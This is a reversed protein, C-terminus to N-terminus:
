QQLKVPRNAKLQSHFLQLLGLHLKKSCIRTDSIWNMITLHICEMFCNYISNFGSFRLMIETHLIFPHVSSEAPTRFTTETGGLRALKTIACVAAKIYRIQGTLLYYFLQSITSPTASILYFSSCGSGAHHNRAPSCGSRSCDTHLCSGQKHLAPIFDAARM